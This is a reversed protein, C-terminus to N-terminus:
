MVAFTGMSIVVGGQVQECIKCKSPVGRGGLHLNLLQIGGYYECLVQMFYNLRCAKSIYKFIIGFLFIHIKM